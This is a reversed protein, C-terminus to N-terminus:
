STTPQRQRNCVPVNRWKCETYNVLWCTIILFAWQIWYCLLTWPKTTYKWCVKSSVSLLQNRWKRHAFYLSWPRHHLETEHRKAAIISVYISAGSYWVSSLNYSAYGNHRNIQWCDLRIFGLSASSSSTVMRDTLWGDVITIVEVSLELWSVTSVWCFEWAPYGSTSVNGMRFAMQSTKATDSIAEM